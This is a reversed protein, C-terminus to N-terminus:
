RWRQSDVVRSTVELTFLVMSAFYVLAHSDIVGQALVGLNTAPTFQDLDKGIFPIEEAQMGGFTLAAVFLLALLAAVFPSETLSSALLGVALMLAGYLLAGLLGTVIVALDADGWPVLLLQMWSVGVVMVVLVFLSGLFKGGVLQRTTMPATLLLEATHQRREDALLRMTLLPVILLLAWIIDQGLTGRIISEPGPVEVLPNQAADLRVGEYAILAGAFLVGQILFFVSIAIYALPATFYSKLERRFIAWVFKM